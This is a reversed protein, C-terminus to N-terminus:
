SFDLTIVREHGQLDCVVDTKGLGTLLRRAAGAQDHGVECAFLGPRALQQPLGDILRRIVDLGDVGAFLANAPEYDRVDSALEADMEVYPPNSVIVDFIEHAVPEYLDGAHFAIRDAVGHAAANLRAVQLAAVSLDTAVVQAHSFECALTVALCGSGTGVDLIRRPAHPWRQVAEVVHETEPRPILVASSVEFDRGFFEKHGTIYAVPEHAARRHIFDRYASRETQTLPQDYHTYLYVRDKGLVHALLVEADLRPTDLAREAFHTATWQLVAGVTWTERARLDTIPSRNETM